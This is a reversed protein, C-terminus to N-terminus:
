ARAKSAPCAVHRLTSRRPMSRRDSRWFAKAGMDAGASLVMADACGLVRFPTLLFKPLPATENRHKKRCADNGGPDRRLARDMSAADRSHVRSWIATAPGM